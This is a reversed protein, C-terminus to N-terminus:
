ASVRYKRVCAISNALQWGNRELANIALELAEPQSVAQVRANTTVKLQPREPRSGQFSVEYVWKAAM